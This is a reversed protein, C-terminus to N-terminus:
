LFFKFWRLGKRQYTRSMSHHHHVDISEVLFAGAGVSTVRLIRHSKLAALVLPFALHLEEKEVGTKKLCGCGGFSMNTKQASRM